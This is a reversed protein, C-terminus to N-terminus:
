CATAATTAAAATATTTTAAAATTATATTTTAAACAQSRSAKKNVHAGHDPWAKWLDACWALRAGVNLAAHFKRHRKRNGLDSEAGTEVHVEAGFRWADCHLHVYGLGSLEHVFLLPCAYTGASGRM